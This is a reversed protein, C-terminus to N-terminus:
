ILEKRKLSSKAARVANPKMKLQEAIEKNDNVGKKILELVRDCQSKTSNNENSQSKNHSTRKKLSKDQKQKDKFQARNHNKTEFQTGNHNKSVLYKYLITTVYDKTSPKVGTSLYISEREIDIKEIIEVPLRITKSQTM